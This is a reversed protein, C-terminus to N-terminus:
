RGELVERIEPPLDDLDSGGGDWFYSVLVFASLGFFALAVVMLLISASRDSEIGPVKKALQMLAGEKKKKPRGKYPDSRYEDFQVNHAM